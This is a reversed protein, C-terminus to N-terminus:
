VKAKVKEKLSTHPNSIENNKDMKYIKASQNSNPSVIKSKINLNRDKQLAIVGKLVILDEPKM